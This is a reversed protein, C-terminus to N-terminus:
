TFTEGLSPFMQQSSVSNEPLQICHPNSYSPIFVSTSFQAHEERAQTKRPLEGFKGM